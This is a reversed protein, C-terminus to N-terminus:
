KFYVANTKPAKDDAHAIAVGRAASYSVIWKKGKPASQAKRLAADMEDVLMEFQAVLERVEAPFREDNAAVAQWDLKPFAM